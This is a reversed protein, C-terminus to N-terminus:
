GNLRRVNPAAVEFDEVTGHYQPATIDPVVCAGCVIMGRSDTTLTAYEAGDEAEVMAATRYCDACRAPEPDIVQGVLAPRTVTLDTTTNM